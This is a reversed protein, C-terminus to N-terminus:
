AVGQMDGWVSSPTIPEVRGSDIFEALDAPKIRVSRGMRYFVIQREAILRRVYRPSMSIREAAEEITLLDVSASTAADTAPAKM